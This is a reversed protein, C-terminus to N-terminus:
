STGTTRWLDKGSSMKGAMALFAAFLFVPYPHYLSGDIMANAAIALALALAFVRAPAARAVTKRWARWLLRGLVICAPLAGTLGWALLWQLIANHPHLFVGRAREMQLAAQGAGIGFLPADLWLRIAEAWMDLRGSTMVNLSEYKDLFRVIGFSPEDLPFAVSLAMALVAIVAQRGALRMKGGLGTRCVVLGVALLAALVAGRGGSWFLAFWVALATLDAAHGRWGAFSEDRAAFRAALLGALVAGLWYDLHRVNRFGPMAFRWLGDPPPAIFAVIVAMAVLYLLLSVVAAVVVIRLQRTSYGAGLLVLFFLAHILYEANKSLAPGPHDSLLTSVAMAALWLGALLGVGRSSPRCAAVLGGGERLMLAILGLEVLPIHAFRLFSEVPGPEPVMFGIRLLPLLLLAAVLAKLSLPTRDPMASARAM